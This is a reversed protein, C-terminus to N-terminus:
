CGPLSSTVGKIGQKSLHQKTNCSSGNFRTIEAAAACSRCGFLRVNLCMLVQQRHTCKGINM